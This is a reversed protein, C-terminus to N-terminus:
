FPFTAIPIGSDNPSYGVDLANRSSRPDFGFRGSMEVSVEFLNKLKGSASDALELCVAIMDAAIKEAKQQGAYMKWAGKDKIKGNRDLSHYLWDLELRIRKAGMTC